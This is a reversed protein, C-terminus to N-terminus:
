RAPRCPSTLNQGQGRRTGGPFHRCRFRQRATPSQRSQAGTFPLNTDMNVTGPPGVVRWPSANLYRFPGTNWEPASKTARPQLQRHHSLRIQLGPANRGLPRRLDCHGLHEIFQGYIYKSIPANTKAPDIEFPSAPPM